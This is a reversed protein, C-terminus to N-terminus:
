RMGSLCSGQWVHEPRKKSLAGVLSVALYVPVSM